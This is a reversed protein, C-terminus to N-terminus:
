GAPSNWSGTSSRSEYRVDLQATPEDLVLVSAGAQVAFLARALAIRQWQGGSLDVGGTYRTSLVTALGDPLTATVEAAGAWEISQELAESDGIRRPAGLGINTAADLEYRVYNSSAPGPVGGRRHGRVGHDIGVRGSTAGSLLHQLLGAVADLHVGVLAEIDALRAVAVDCPM